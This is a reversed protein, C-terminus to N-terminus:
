KDRVREMEELCGQSLGCMYKEKVAVLYQRQSMYGPTFSQKTTLYVNIFGSLGAALSGGARALVRTWVGAFCFPAQGAMMENCLMTYSETECTSPQM